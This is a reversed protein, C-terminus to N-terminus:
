SYGIHANEKSIQTATITVGSISGQVVVQMGVRLQDASLPHKVTGFRTKPTVIVTFVPGGPTRVTWTSGNKATLEGTVKPAHHGRGGHKTPGPVPAPAVSTSTGPSASSDAPGPSPKACGALTLVAGLSLVLVQETWRRRRGVRTDM